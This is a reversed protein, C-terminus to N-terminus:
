FRFYIFPNYTSGVLLIVSIFFLILNLSINLSSVLKENRIYKALLQQITKYIPMCLCIALIFWYLNEMFVSQLEFDFLEVRKAYFLVKLINIQDQHM